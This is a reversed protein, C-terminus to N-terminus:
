GRGEVQAAGSGASRTMAYVWHRRLPHDEALGPHDFDRGPDRRFGVREMVAQSRLNSAATFALIEALAMREFGHVAVARAAETAYGQGWADRVLRWGIEVGRLPLPEGVPFLGVCGLFAHDARREIVSLGYGREDLRANVREISTRAADPALVGGLWDMVAPDASM